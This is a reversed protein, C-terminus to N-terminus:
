RLMKDVWEARESGIDAVRGICGAWRRGALLAVLRVARPLHPQWVFRGEDSVTPATM